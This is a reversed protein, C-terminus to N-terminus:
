QRKGRFELVVNARSNRTQEKWTAWRCNNPGYNKNCNIRELSMDDPRVGMDAFFAEFRHWRQCVSIGRAGYWRYSRVKPNRCRQLMDWWARYTKTGTMRHTTM